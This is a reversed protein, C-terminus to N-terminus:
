KWDAPGNASLTETGSGGLAQNSVYTNYGNSGPWTAKSLYPGCSGGLQVTCAFSTSTPTPTPTPTPTVTPTPTPTPTPTVTKTATVTPTPRAALSAVSSRLGNIVADDSNLRSQHCGLTQATCPPYYTSALRPGGAAAWTLTVSSAALTLAFVVAVLARPARKM